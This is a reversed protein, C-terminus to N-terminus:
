VGGTTGSRKVLGSLQLSVSPLQSGNATELIGMKSQDAATVHVRFVGPSWWARERFDQGCCTGIDMGKVSIFIHAVVCEENRESFVTVPGLNHHRHLIMDAHLNAFVYQLRLATSSRNM